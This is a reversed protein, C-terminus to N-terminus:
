LGVHLQRGAASLDVTVSMSFQTHSFTTNGSFSILLLCVLQLASGARSVIYILLMRIM